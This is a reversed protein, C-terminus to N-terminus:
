QYKAKKSKTRTSFGKDEVWAEFLECWGLVCSVTELFVSQKGCLCVCVCESVLGVALSKRLCFFPDGIQYSSSLFRFFDAKALPSANASACHLWM